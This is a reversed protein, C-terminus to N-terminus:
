LEYLVCCDRVQPQFALMPTPSTGPIDSVDVPNRTKSTSAKQLGNRIRHQSSVHLPLAAATGPLQYVPAVPNTHRECWTADKTRPMSGEIDANTLAACPKNTRAPVLVRCAMGPDSDAFSKALSPQAHRGKNLPKHQVAPRGLDDEATRM